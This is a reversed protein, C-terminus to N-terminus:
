ASSFLPLDISICYTSLCTADRQPSHKVPKSAVAALVSAIPPSVMDLATSDASVEVVSMGSSSTQAAMEVACVASPNSSMAGDYATVTESGAGTTRM